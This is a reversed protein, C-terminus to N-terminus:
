PTGGSTRATVNAAMEAIAAAVVSSSARKLEIQAPTPEARLPVRVPTPPAALREHLWDTRMIRGTNQRFRANWDASAEGKGRWYARFDLIVSELDLGKARVDAADDPDPQWDAPLFTLPLQERRRRKTSSKKPEPIEVMSAPAAGPANEEAKREEGRREKTPTVATVGTVNDTANCSGTVQQSEELRRKRHKRVRAATTDPRVWRDHATVEIVRRNEPGSLSILPQDEPDSPDLPVTLLELAAKIERRDGGLIDHVADVDSRFGRPLAIRGASPRALLSLELYIFRVARPFGRKDGERLSSHFPVWSM